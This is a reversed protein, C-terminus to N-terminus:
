RPSLPLRSATPQKAATVAQAQILDIIFLLTANPPIGSTGAAGYALEPPVVIQRRGSVKMGILGQELGAIMQPPTQGLIAVFPGSTNSDGLEPGKNDAATTSYQYVVYSFEVGMGSTVTTGTGVILDTISFPVNLPTPAATSGGCSISSVLAGLLLLHSLRRLM